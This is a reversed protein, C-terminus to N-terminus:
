ARLATEVARAANVVRMAAAMAAVDHVRVVHVGLMAALTNFAVTAERMQAVGQVEASPLKPHGLLEALFAKQSASIVVPRGLSLLDPLGWLLRLNDDMGKGFEFGPDVWVQPTGVEELAQAREALYGQVEAAIDDYQQSAGHHQKPTGRMHMILLPLGHRAAVAGMEPDEGATVDNILHAGVAATADAVRATWTDVSILHGEAHLAEVVPCLREIEEQAPPSEGGTRTSHAGVDIIEAGAARLATARECAARAPVVSAAVPSDTAVNLVGMIITRRTCDLTQDGLQLHM